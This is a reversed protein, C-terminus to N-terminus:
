LGRKKKEAVVKPRHKYASNYKNLYEDVGLLAHDSWKAIEEESWVDIARETKDSM